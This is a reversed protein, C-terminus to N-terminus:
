EDIKDGDNYREWIKLRENWIKIEKAPCGGVITRPRVNSTVVSNAAIISGFGIRVGQQIVVGDGIWVNDEIYIPSSSIRRNNPPIEPADCKDNRYTGHANDIITVKSGILVNNGIIIKNICRISVFDGINVYSGFVLRKDDYKGIVEIRCNYGTTLKLGFNIYKKGRIIIPYRVLRSSPFDIRNRTLAIINRLFEIFGYNAHRNDRLKTIM